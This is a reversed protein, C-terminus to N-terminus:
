TREARAFRINLERVNGGEIKAVIFEEFSKRIATMIKADAAVVLGEDVLRGDSLREDLIFLDDLATNQDGDLVFMVEKVSLCSWITDWAMLKDSELRQWNCAYRPLRFLLKKVRMMSASYTGQATVVLSRIDGDLLSVIEYLNIADVDYNIFVGFRLTTAPYLVEIDYNERTEQRSERCAIFVAM